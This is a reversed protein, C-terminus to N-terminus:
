RSPGNHKPPRHSKPAKPGKHTNPPKPTDPPKAREPTYYEWVEALRKYFDVMAGNLKTFYHGQEFSSFNSHTYAKWTVYPEAAKPNYGVVVMTDGARQSEIITYGQVVITKEM